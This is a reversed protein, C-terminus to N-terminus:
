WYTRTKTNRQLPKGTSRDSTVARAGRRSSTRKRRTTSRFNMEIGDGAESFLSIAPRPDRYGRILGGIYSCRVAASADKEAAAAPEPDKERIVIGPLELGRIKEKFSVGARIYHRDTPYTMLVAAAANMIGEERKKRAELGEPGFVMHSFYPDLCVAIWPVRTERTLRSACGHAPIPASFSVIADYDAASVAKRIKETVMKGLVFPTLSGTCKEPHFSYAPVRLVRISGKEEAPSDGSLRVTVLDIDYWAALRGCVIRIIRTNANEMPFYEYALVLLKKM